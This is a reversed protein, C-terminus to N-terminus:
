KNLREKILMFYFRLEKRDIYLKILLFPLMLILTILLTDM